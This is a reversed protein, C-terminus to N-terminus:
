ENAKAGIVERLHQYQKLEEQTNISHFDVSNNEFPVICMSLQQFCRHLSKQNNAINKELVKSASRRMLCLPYLARGNIAAVAVVQQSNETLAQYLITAIDEPIFTIDCPIFLIYNNKVHSWASKMGMLPGQFGDEDDQFFRINHILHSYLSHDRHSNIWIQHASQHLKKHIKILQIDDDFQQLLKNTGNMRKAQGGALIVVDIKPAFASKAAYFSNSM